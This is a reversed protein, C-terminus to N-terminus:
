VQWSSDLGLLLFIEFFYDWLFPMAFVPVRTRVAVSSFYFSANIIHGIHYGYVMKKRENRQKPM